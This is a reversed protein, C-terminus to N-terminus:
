RLCGMAICAMCDVGERSLRAHKPVSFHRPPIRICAFECELTLWAPRDGFYHYVQHTISGVRAHLLHPKRTKRKM